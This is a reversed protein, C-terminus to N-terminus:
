AATEPPRNEHVQVPAPPVRRPPRDRRCPPRDQQGPGPQHSPGHRDRHAVTRLGPAAPHRGSRRETTLRGIRRGELELVGCVLRSGNSSGPARRELEAIASVIIGSHGPGLLAVPTSIQGSASSSSAEPPEARGPSGPLPPGLAGHRDFAWVLVVDFSAAAPMPWSDQALRPTPGPGALAPRHIGAVIELGRQEALQRLDYAQTEPNQDLPQFERSVSPDAVSRENEGQDTTATACETVEPSGGFCTEPSGPMLRHRRSRLSALSHPVSTPDARLLCWPLPSRMCAPLDHVRAPIWGGEVAYWDRADMGALRAAEPRIVPAAYRRRRVYRAM